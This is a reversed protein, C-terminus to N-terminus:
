CTVGGVVGGLQLDIQARGDSMLTATRSRRWGKVAWAMAAVRVRDPILYLGLALAATAESIELFPCESSGCRRRAEQSSGSEGEPQLVEVERVLNFSFFFFCKLSGDKSDMDFTYCSGQDLKPLEM